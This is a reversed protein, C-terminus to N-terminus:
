PYIQVSGRNGCGPPYAATREIQWGAAAHNALYSEDPHHYSNPKGYSVVAKAVGKPLPILGSSSGGHHPVTIRSAGNLITPDIMSYSADGTLVVKDQGLEISLSYGTGNRDKLNTSLGPKLEFHPRIVPGTLFRLNNGLKRQFNLANPGVPQDPAIWTLAQLQPVRWGLAFHDFDWHSLVVFGSTPPEHCLKGHFSKQNWYIPAGTDFYGIPHGNVFFANCSAQGVDVARIELNSTRENALRFLAPDDNFPVKNELTCHKALRLAADRAAGVGITEPDPLRSISRINQSEEPFYRSTAPLLWARPAGREIQVTLELWDCEKVPPLQFDEELRRRTSLVRILFLSEDQLLAGPDRDFADADVADLWLSERARLSPNEGAPEIRADVFAYFRRREAKRLGVKAKAM